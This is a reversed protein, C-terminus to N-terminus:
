KEGIEAGAPKTPTASTSDGRPGPRPEAKPEPKTEPKPETKPDAADKAPQGAAGKGKNEIRAGPEPRSREVDMSFDGNNGAVFVTRTVSEGNHIIQTITKPQKVAEPEKETGKVVAPGTPQTGGTAPDPVNILPPTAAGGSGDTGTASAVSADSSKSVDRPRVLRPNLIEDDEPNRLMLSLEGLAAALRLKQADDPKAALTVTSALMAQKEGDRQYSTDSALVLM